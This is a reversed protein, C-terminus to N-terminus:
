SAVSSLFLPRTNFEPSIFSVEIEWKMVKVFNSYMLTEKAFYIDVNFLYETGPEVNWELCLLQEQAKEPKEPLPRRFIFSTIEVESKM